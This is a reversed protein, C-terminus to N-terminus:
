IGEGRIRRNHSAAYLYLHMELREIKKTTNWTKRNLRSTHARFKACTHNLSFLPDWVTKKLEGQGTVAGRKGKVTEHTANPFYTKVDQVYHPNSDSRILAHEAIHPKLKEFLKRRQIPREDRRYGYKKRARAALPGRCPMRAVAFGLVRRTKSETMMTISVPKCKTHEFTEMDDFEVEIAPPHALNELELERAALKALFILKRVITKRNLKLVRAMERQSANANYLRRVLENKHRKNQGFCPHHTAQSFGTQCSCCLFRQIRRGDSKRWYTGIRRVSGPRTSGSTPQPCKPCIAHM